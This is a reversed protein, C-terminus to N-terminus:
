GGAAERGARAVTRCRMPHPPVTERKPASAAALNRAPDFPGAKRPGTAPVGFAPDNRLSLTRIPVRTQSRSEPETQWPTAAGDRGGVSAGAALDDHPPKSGGVAM